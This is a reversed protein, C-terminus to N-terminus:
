QCLWNILSDVNDNYRFIKFEKCTSSINLRKAMEELLAFAEHSLVRTNLSFAKRNSFSIMSGLSEVNEIFM